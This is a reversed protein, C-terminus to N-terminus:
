IARALLGRGSVAAVGLAAIAATLALIAGGGMGVSITSDLSPLGTMLGQHAAARSASIFAHLGAAGAALSAAMSLALTARQAATETIEGLRSLLADSGLILAALAMGMMLPIPGVSWGAAWMTMPMEPHDVLREAPIHSVAEAILVGGQLVGAVGTAVATAALGHNLLRARRRRAAQVALAGLWLASTGAIGWMFPGGRHMLDILTM